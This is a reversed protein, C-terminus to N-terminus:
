SIYNSAQLSFMKYYEKKHNMLEDHSGREFIIGNKLFIIEDVYKVSSLRHSILISTRNGEKCYERIQDYVETEAIADLSATPEDLILIEAQSFIARAIAIKQWQGLSLDIGEKWQKLLNTEYKDPLKEIFKDAGSKKAAKLIGETNNINKVNGIGINEMVNLPYRIFDQFVVSFKDNYSETSYNDLDNENYIIKGESSKYLNLLVKIFTTKGSGNEGVIAYTKGKEFVVNIDKIVYHNTNPYKFSVNKMELKKFSELEKIKDESNEGNKNEELFDMLNQIYLNNEYLKSEGTLISKLAGVATNYNQWYFIINGISFCKIIVLHLLYLQIFFSAVNVLLDTREKKSAFSILLKKNEKINKIYTDLIINKFYKSAKCVKLEKINQYQIIFSKLFEAYRLKEVRSEFVKYLKNSISLQIFFSPIGLLLIIIILTPNLKSIVACSVCLTIINMFINISIMFLNISKNVSQGCVIDFKNYFKSDEFAEMKTHIFISMLRDTLYKNYYDMQISQMYGLIENFFSLVFNGIVVLVLPYILVKISISELESSAIDVFYKWLYSNIIPLIGIISNFLLICIFLLKNSMFILYIVKFYNKIVAKYKKIM